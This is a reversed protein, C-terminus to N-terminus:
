AFAQELVRAAREAANGDWARPVRGSRPERHLAAYAGLIGERTTHGLVNTGETVTIPRETNNRLTICPVGLVTTEDQVGGSDTLVVKASSELKVFDLYGLPETLLFRESRPRIRAAEFRARTRPHVPFVVPLEIAIEDLTDLLTRLQREDDVNSPRHLTLLAYGRPELGLRALVDSAAARAQLSLLTDVMVNGVFHQREPAVGERCLNAEGAPESVFLLDSLCDTVRRNVEEPMDDDFSRLGAELHALVTRRRPKGRFPFPEDRFFKSTALACALTSNLDGAVVVGHPQEAQLVAEFRRMVEAVQVAHTASGVGLDVHPEPLGLEECILKSMRPDSHQGTHVFRTEFRDTRTGLARFLAALKPFNPRGGAVCVLKVRM